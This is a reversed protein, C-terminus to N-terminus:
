LRRQAAEVHARLDRWGVHADETVCADKALRRVGALSLRGPEGDAELDARTLVHFQWQELDLPNVLARPPEAANKGLVCFVFLDAAYAAKEAFGAGMTFEKGMLGSFSPANPRRTEWDQWYASSKVEVTRGSATKLDFERDPSAPVGLDSGILRAVIFEALVGRTVDARLRSYAWSWFDKVTAAGRDDGYPGDVTLLPENGKLCPQPELEIM